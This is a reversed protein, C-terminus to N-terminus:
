KFFAKLKKDLEEKSLNYKPILDEQGPLQEVYMTQSPFAFRVGICEALEMVKFTIEEKLQLEEAYVNTDLYVRFLINISYAGLEDLFVLSGEDVIKPHDIVIKRLGEIYAHLYERPTDYTLGFKTEFLRYVRLGKNKLAQNSINGNPISIITTDVRKIRTSRFGVEIVKGSMGDVEIWDDIQFPKDLFIMLSGILNKVTDQAALALALGGISIGAILATVNVNLVVLVRIITYVIILIKVLQRIIPLFQDDMKSATAEALSSLFSLVIDFLRYIMFSVFIIIIIDLASVLFSSYQIPLLLLAFGYKVLVMVVLLSIMKATKEYQLSLDLKRKFIKQVMFILLPKFILNLLLYILGALLIVIFFGLIQWFKLGMFTGGGLQSLYKEMLDDGFPYIDSYLKEIEDYCSPAYYWNGNIKEVFIQPLREPFIIYRNKALTSDVYNPINPIKNVPVFLGLGDYVKKLKKSLKILKAKGATGYFSRASLEPNYDLQNLHNLHNTVCKYPTDLNGEDQGNISGLYLTVLLLLLIKKLYKSM